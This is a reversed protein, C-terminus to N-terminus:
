VLLDLFRELSQKSYGGDQSSMSFISVAGFYESAFQFQKEYALCLEQTKLSQRDLANTKNFLIVLFCMKWRPNHCVEDLFQRLIEASKSVPVASSDATESVDVVYVFGDYTETAAYRPWYKRIKDGGGVEWLSLMTKKHRIQKINFGTTPPLASAVFTEPSRLVALRQLITSKGGGSCGLFLISSEWTISDADTLMARRKCCFCKCFVMYVSAYFLGCFQCLSIRGHKSEVASTASSTGGNLKSFAGGEETM